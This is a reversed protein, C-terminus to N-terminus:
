NSKRAGLKKIMSGGFCAMMLSLLITLIFASIVKNVNFDYVLFGICYTLSLTFILGVIYNLPVKRRVPKQLILVLSAITM